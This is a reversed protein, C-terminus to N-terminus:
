PDSHRRRPLRHLQVVSDALRVAFSEPLSFIFRFFFTEVGDLIIHYLNVGFCNESITRQFDHLSWTQSTSSQTAVLTVFINRDPVRIRLKVCRM